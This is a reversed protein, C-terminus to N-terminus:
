DNQFFFYRRYATHRYATNVSHGKPETPVYIASISSYSMPMSALLKYIAEAEGVQRHTMFTNAMENCKAKMDKDESLQKMATKLVETM